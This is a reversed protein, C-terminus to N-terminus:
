KKRPGGLIVPDLSKGKADLLQSKNPKLSPETQKLNVVQVDSNIDRANPDIDINITTSANAATAAFAISAALIATKLTRMPMDKQDNIFLSNLLTREKRSCTYLIV